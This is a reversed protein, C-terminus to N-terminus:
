KEKYIIVEYDYSIKGADGYETKWWNSKECTISVKVVQEKDSNYNTIAPVWVIKQGCSYEIEYDLPKGNVTMKIKPNTFSFRHDYVEFSWRNFVLNGPVPGAPPWTVYETSYSNIVSDPFQEGHVWFATANGTTGYAFHKSSTVVLWGRHGCEKNNEGADEFQQDICDALAFGLGLNSNSAGKYADDSYCKWDKGPEHSLQDQATMCLAAAQCFINKTTDFRCDNPLGALRRFFSLRQLTREQALQSIKGPICGDVSGTWGLEDKTFESGTYNAKYDKSVCERKLLLLNKDAPFLKLAHGLLLQAKSFDQKDINTRIFRSYYDKAFTEFSKFGPFHNKWFRIESIENISCGFNKLESVLRTEFATLLNKLQPLNSFEKRLLLLSYGQLRYDASNEDVFKIATERPDAQNCTKNISLFERYLGLSVEESSFYSGLIEKKISKNIVELTANRDPLSDLAFRYLSDLKLFVSSDPTEYGAVVKTYVTLYNKAPVFFREDSGYQKYAKIAERIYFRVDGNGSSGSNVSEGAIRLHQDATKRMNEPFLINILEFLKLAHSNLDMNVFIDTVSILDAYFGTDPKEGKLYRYYYEQLGTNIYQIGYSEQWAHLYSRGVYFYDRQDLLTNLIKEYYAKLKEIDGDRAIEDGKSFLVRRLKECAAENEKYFKGNKDKKKLSAMSSIVKDTAKKYEPKYASSDEGIKSIEAWAMSEYLIAYLDKSDKDRAKECLIICKDYKKSDFAAVYKGKQAHVATFCFILLTLLYLAKKM